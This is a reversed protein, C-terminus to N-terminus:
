STKEPSTVDPDFNYFTGHEEWHDRYCDISAADIDISQGQIPCGVRYFADSLGNVADIPLDVVEKSPLRSPSPRTEKERLTRKPLDSFILTTKSPDVKQWRDPKAAFINGAWKEDTELVVVSEAGSVTRVACYSSVVNYKETIKTDCKVKFLM